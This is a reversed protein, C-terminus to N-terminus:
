RPPVYSSRTGEQQVGVSSQQGTKSANDGEPGKAKKKEDAMERAEESLGSNDIAPAWTSRQEPPAADSQPQHAPKNSVAGGMSPKQSLNTEGGPKYTETNQPRGHSKQEMGKFSSIEM